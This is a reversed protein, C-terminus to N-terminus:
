YNTIIVEEIEGRNNGKSNISRKAKIIYLNFDKYIENIFQTNANSIMVKVGKNTLENMLDRLRLQDEKSFGNKTYSTFSTDKINDYPPDFYVFDNKKAKLSVKYFDECM